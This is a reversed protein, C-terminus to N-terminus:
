YLMWLTGTCQFTGSAVPTSGHFHFPVLRKLKLQLFTSAQLAASCNFGRLSICAPLRQVVFTRMVDAMEPGLAKSRLCKAICNFGKEAAAKAAQTIAAEERAATESGHCTQMDTCADNGKGYGDSPGFPPALDGMVTQSDDSCNSCWPKLAARMASDTAQMILAAEAETDDSEHTFPGVHDLM